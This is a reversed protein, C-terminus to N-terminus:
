SAISFMAAWDHFATLIRHSLHDLEAVTGRITMPSDLKISLECNDTVVVSGRIETVISAIHNALGIMDQHSGVLRYTRGLPIAIENITIETTVTPTSAIIAKSKILTIM